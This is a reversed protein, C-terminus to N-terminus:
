ASRRNQALISPPTHAWAGRKRSLHTRRPGRTPLAKNGTPQGCAETYSVDSQNPRRMGHPQQEARRADGRLGKGRQQRSRSPLGSNRTLSSLLAPFPWSM